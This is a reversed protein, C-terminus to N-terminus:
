LGMSLDRLLEQEEEEEEEIAESISDNGKPSPSPPGSKSGNLKGPSWAVGEKGPLPSVVEQGGEGAQGGLDSSSFINNMMRQALTGYDLDGDTGMAPLMFDSFDTTASVPSLPPAAVRRERKVRPTGELKLRNMRADVLDRESAGTPQPSLAARAAARRERTQVEEQKARNQGQCFKDADTLTGGIGTLVCRGPLRSRGSSELSTKVKCRGAWRKVKESTRKCMESSSKRKCPETAYSKCNIKLQRM